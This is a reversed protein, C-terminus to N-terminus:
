VSLQDIGSTFHVLYSIYAFCLLEPMNALIHGKHVTPPNGVWDRACSRTYTKM